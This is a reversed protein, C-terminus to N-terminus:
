HSLVVFTQKRGVSVHLAPSWPSQADGGPARLCVSAAELQGSVAGPAFLTGWTADQSALAGAPPSGREKQESADGLVPPAGGQQMSPPSSTCNRRQGSAPARSRPVSATCPARPARAEKRPPKVLSLLLGQPTRREAGWARRGVPLREKMAPRNCLSLRRHNRAAGVGRPECCRLEGKGSNWEDTHSDGVPAGRPGPRHKNDSAKRDKTAIQTSPM